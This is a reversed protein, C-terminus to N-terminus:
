ADAILAPCNPITTGLRSPDLRKGVPVRQVIGDVHLGDPGAERLIEVISTAELIRLCAPLHYAMSADSYRMTLVTIGSHPIFVSWLTMFPNQVAVALQGTAAVIRASARMVDPHLALAEAASAPAYPASLAPFDQAKEEGHEYAHQIDDLAAGIIAHLARLESFTM